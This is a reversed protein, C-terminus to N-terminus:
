KLRSQIFLVRTSRSGRHKTTSKRSNGAYDYARVFWRHRGGRVRFWTKAHPKRGGPGDPDRVTKRKKGDIFLKYYRIGSTDNSRQWRFRVGLKRSEYRNRPSILRFQSPGTVDASPQAPPPPAQVSQGAGLAKGVDLRGGTVTKGALSPLPDVSQLLADRVQTVTSQPTRALYLAAAGSVFPAAMSTGSFYAYGSASVQKPVTSYIEDGPAGLDVTRSGYNSFDLLSDDSDTAAVSVINPLDFAAPYEPSTDSNDGENGAAAVFLVGQNDADKIAKYLAFSYAPGGWSANIVKAGANIAYDIAEAAQATSGEGSANLFKLAMLHVKWNVGVTGLGNNGESGVIGAVHTGHGSDDMPDSDGNSLDIGHVDDVFGNHDDDIGNPPDAPNTWINNKLDVHNYDVGTDVVAVTVDGGTTLDWAAPANIDAGATGDLQGTNHLAWLQGFAGDNPIRSSKLVYNPEVFDVGDLQSLQDALQDTSKGGRASVVAGDISDVRDEIRGGAQVVAKRQASPSTDEDFGVVLQGPVVEPDAVQSPDDAASASAGGVLVLLAVAAAVVLALLSRRSWGEWVSALDM